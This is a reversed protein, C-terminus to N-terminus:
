ISLNFVNVNFIVEVDVVYFNVSLNVLIIGVVILGLAKKIIFKNM